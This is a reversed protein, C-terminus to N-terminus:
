AQLLVFVVYLPVHLKECYAYYILKKKKCYSHEAKIHLVELAKIKCAALSTADRM